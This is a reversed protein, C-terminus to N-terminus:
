TRQENSLSEHQNTKRKMNKYFLNRHIGIQRAAASKNGDYAQLTGRLFGDAFVRVAQRYSFSVINGLTFASQHFNLLALNIEKENISM